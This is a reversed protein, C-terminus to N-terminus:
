ASSPMRYRTRDRPSPSTYLLCINLLMIDTLDKRISRYLAPDQPNKVLRNFDMSLKNTLEEEGIETINNQQLALHKTFTKIVISDKLDEDLSLLMSRTYELTNYNAVLINQTDKNLVTISLTGLAALLIILIFLLGVGLTLKAKIKM